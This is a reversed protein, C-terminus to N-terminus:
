RLLAVLHYSKKGKRLLLFRGEIAIDATVDANITEVRQNNVYVGGGEVSRRADGRSSALGSEVMLDIM